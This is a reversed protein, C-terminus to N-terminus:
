FYLFSTSSSLGICQSELENQKTCLNSTFNKTQKNNGPGEGGKRSGVTGGVGVGTQLEKLARWRVLQCASYFWIRLPSTWKLGITSANKVVDGVLVSDACRM